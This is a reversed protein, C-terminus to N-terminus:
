AFLRGDAIDVLHGDVGEASLTILLFGQYAAVEQVLTYNPHLRRWRNLWNGICMWHYLDRDIDSENLTNAEFQEYHGVLHEGIVQIIAKIECEQDETLENHKQMRKSNAYLTELHRHAVAYKRNGVMVNIIVDSPMVDKTLNEVLTVFDAKKNKLMTSHKLKKLKRKERKKM